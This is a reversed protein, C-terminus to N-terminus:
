FAAIPLPVLTLSSSSLCYCHAFCRGFLSQPQGPHTGLRLASEVELVEIPLKLAALFRRIVGPETIEVDLAFM